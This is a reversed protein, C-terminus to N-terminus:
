RVVMLRGSYIALGDSANARFIYAGAQLHVNNIELKNAYGSNQVDINSVVMGTSNYITVSSIDKAQMGKDLSIVINGANEHVIVSKNSYSLLSEIRNAIKGVKGNEELFYSDESLVNPFTSSQKISFLDKVQIADNIDESFYTIYLVGDSLEYEANNVHFVLDEFNVSGVEVSLSLMNVRKTENFGVTITRDYNSRQILQEVISSIVSRIETEDQQFPKTCDPDEFSNNVDGLHFLNFDIPNSADSWNVLECGNLCFGDYYDPETYNELCNKSIIRCFNFDTTIGLIIKRLFTLDQATVKGDGNADAWYGYYPPYPKTIDSEDYPFGLIYRQIQVLDLTALGNAVVDLCTVEPCIQVPFHKIHITCCYTGNPGTTTNCLVQGNVSRITVPVGEFGTCMGTPDLISGCVTKSPELIQGYLTFSAM